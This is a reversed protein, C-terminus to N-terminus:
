FKKSETYMQAVRECRATTHFTQERKPYKCINLEEFKVTRRDLTIRETCTFDPGSNRQMKEIKDESITIPVIPELTKEDKKYEFLKKGESHFLFYREVVEHFTENRDSRDIFERGKCKLWVDDISTYKEPVQAISLTVISLSIAITSLKHVNM